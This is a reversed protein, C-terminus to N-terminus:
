NFENRERNKIDYCRRKNSSLTISREYSLKLYSLVLFIMPRSLVSFERLKAELAHKKWFINDFVKTRFDMADERIWELSDLVAHMIGELGFM